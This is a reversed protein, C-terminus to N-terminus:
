LLCLRLFEDVVFSASFIEDPREIDVIDYNLFMSFLCSTYFPLSQMFFIKHIKLLTRM